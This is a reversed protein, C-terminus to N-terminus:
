SAILSKWRKMRWASERELGVVGRHKRLECFSGLQEHNGLCVYDLQAYNLGDVM